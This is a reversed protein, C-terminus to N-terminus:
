TEKEPEHRGASFRNGRTCNGAKWFYLGEIVSVHPRVCESMYTRPRTPACGVCVCLSGCVGLSVGRTGSVGVGTGLAQALITLLLVSLSLNARVGVCGSM